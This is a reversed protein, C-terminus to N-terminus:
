HRPARQVLSVFALDIDRATAAQMIEIKQDIASAGERLERLQLDHDPYGPNVLAGVLAPDGVARRLLELQKPILATAVWSVGTINGGPRSLSAVLGASIPDGGSVFVIPITTTAAKAALAPANGAVAAIVSVQRGVLEAALAPLRDYQGKAWRYEIAVNQGEVYGIESLGQRFADVADAFPGDPSASHLFGVVGALAIFHRRRM